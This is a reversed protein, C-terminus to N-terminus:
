MILPPCQPSFMEPVFLCSDPLVKDGGMKDCLIFPSYSLSFGSLWACIASVRRAKDLDRFFLIHMTAASVVCSGLWQYVDTSKSLLGQINHHVIRVGSIPDHVYYM